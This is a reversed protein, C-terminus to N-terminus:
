RRTKRQISITLVQVGVDHWVFIQAEIRQTQNVVRLMLM